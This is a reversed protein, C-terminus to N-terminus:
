LGGEEAMSIWDLAKRNIPLLIVMLQIKNPNFIFRKM